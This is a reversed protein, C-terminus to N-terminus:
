GKALQRLRRAHRVSVGLLDAVQRHTMESDVAAAAELRALHTGKAHRAIYGAAGGLEGRMAQEIAQWKEEPVGPLDARAIDLLQRVVDGAM